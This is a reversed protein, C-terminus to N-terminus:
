VEQIEYKYSTGTISDKAYELWHKGRCTIYFYNDQDDIEVVDELTRIPVWTYSNNSLKYIKVTVGEPYNHLTNERIHLKM